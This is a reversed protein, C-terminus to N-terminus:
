RSRPVFFRAVVALDGGGRLRPSLPPAAAHNTRKEVTILGIVVRRGVELSSDCIMGGSVLGVRKRKGGKVM